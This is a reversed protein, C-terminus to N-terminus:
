RLTMNPPRPPHGRSGPVPRPQMPARAPQFQVQSLTLRQRLRQESMTPPHGSHGPRPQTSVPRLRPGSSQPFRPRINTVTQGHPRMIPPRGHVRGKYKKPSVFEDFKKCFFPSSDSHDEEDESDNESGDEEDFHNKRVPEDLEKKTKLKKLPPFDQEHDGALYDSETSTAERARENGDIISKQKDFLETGDRNDNHNDNFIQRSQDHDNTRPPSQLGPEPQQSTQQNSDDEAEPIAAVGVSEEKLHPLESRFGILINEDFLKM